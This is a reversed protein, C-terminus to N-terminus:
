GSLVIRLPANDWVQLARTMLNEFEQHFIATQPLSRSCMNPDRPIAESTIFRFAAILLVWALFSPSKKWTAGSRKMQARFPETQM